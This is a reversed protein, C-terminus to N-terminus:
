AVVEDRQQIKSEMWEDVESELWCVATGGEVLKISRPFGGTKALAYIYSKSLRTKKMVDEIRLFRHSKSTTMTFERLQTLTFDAANAKPWTCVILHSIPSTVQTSTHIEQQKVDFSALSRPAPSMHSFSICM